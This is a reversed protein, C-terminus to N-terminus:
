SMGNTYLSEVVKFFNEGNVKGVAFIEVAACLMLMFLLRKLITLRITSQTKKSSIVCAASVMLPGAAWAAFGFLGHMVDYLARWGMSGPIVAMLTLLVGAAFLIVSAIRRKKLSRRM